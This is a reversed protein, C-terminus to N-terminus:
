VEEKSRSTCQIELYLVQESLIFCMVGARRRNNVFPSWPWFVEFVTNWSFVPWHDHMAQHLVTFWKTSNCLLITDRMFRDAPNRKMDLLLASLLFSLQASVTGM